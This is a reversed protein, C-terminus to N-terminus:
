SGNGSWRSCSTTIGGTAKEASVSQIRCQLTLSHMDVFVINDLAACGPNEKLVQAVVGMELVNIDRCYREYM